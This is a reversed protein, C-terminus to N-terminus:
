KKRSKVILLIRVGLWFSVVACVAIVGAPLANTNGEEQLLQTVEEQEMRVRYGRVLLRHSNIGYPTCTVLTCYDKGAVPLLDQSENPLVVKIQDVEYALTEDLIHIYFTDGEEMETLDTFLEASPLGTHGTLVAHNGEGGIPFASQPLHGVAKALVADGTGHYIPLSVDIKPIQISGMIGNGFDMIENYEDLFASDEDSGFVDTIDSGSIKANYAEALRRQEDIRASEVQEMQQNLEQIAYSGNRQNVYNSLSPYFMVVLGVVLLLLALIISKKRSM